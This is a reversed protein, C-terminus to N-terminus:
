NKFGNAIAEKLLTYYRSANRYILRKNYIEKGFNAETDFLMKTFDKQTIVIAHVPPMMVSTLNEFLKQKNFANDKTIAVVDIDSRPTQKGMVYSGTVLIIDDLFDEFGLIKKMGKIDRTLAEQEDLYSLISISEPTLTLECVASKGVKKLTLIQKKVLEQVAMYVLSYHKKLTLSLGRITASLFINRRYMELVLKENKKIMNDDLQSLIIMYEHYIFRENKQQSTTTPIM